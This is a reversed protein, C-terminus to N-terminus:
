KLTNYLKVINQVCQEVGFLDQARKRAAIGMERSKERDKILVELAWAIAKSDKPPVLIGTTGNDVVEPIGGINTAVLPKGMSMAEILVRGFAERLTPLVFIDTIALVSSFDKRMGIFSVKEKLGLSGVLSKLKFEYGRFREVSEGAIIFKLNPYVKVLKGAAELFYGFGKMPVLTGATAIVLSDPSIKLESKLDIRIKEMSYEQLDVGNYIRVVKDKPRVWNFKRAVAESIVIVKSSLAVLLKESLWSSDLVRVHFVFPIKNIRAALAGLFSERSCAANSHVIGINEKRILDSFKRLSSIFSFLHLKKFSKTQIIETQINLSKLTDVQTGPSPSVVIAKFYRPDLGKLVGILSVQGGGIINGYAAIYLIKVPHTYDM